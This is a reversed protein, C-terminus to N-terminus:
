DVQIGSFRTLMDSKSKIVRDIATEMDRMDIPRLRDIETDYLEDVDKNQLLERIRNTSAVRCVEKLDSGTMGATQESLKDYDLNETDEPFLVLRLINNRQVKEPKRINFQCPLRRLIAPDIDGPRNTAAVIMIRCHPDTIIGDWMSMFQAKIMATAEHDQSSRSRLFSDIEDIFIIAPQLKTALTFVAEARKQSEGYWKDVMSSIKFNIFRAGADKAIAKAVMTKGCGPPGHLLLGKPPQLLVSNTFLDRRKFPFIITEKISKIVDEMGGIDSWSVDLSAPEVLDAAFCLEYDTLKVGSVGIKKMLEKARKEAAKKEKRTPDMMDLLVKGLVLSLGASLALRLLLSTIENMRSPGEPLDVPEVKVPTVGRVSEYIQNWMTSITM